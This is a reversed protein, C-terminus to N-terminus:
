ASSWRYSTVTGAFSVSSTAPNFCVQTLIFASDTATPSFKCRNCAPNLRSSKFCTFSKTTSAASNRASQSKFPGITGPTFGRSAMSRKSWYLAKNSTRLRLHFAYTSPSSSKPNVTVRYGSSSCVSFSSSNKPRSYSRYLSTIAVM